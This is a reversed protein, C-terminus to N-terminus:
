SVIKFIETKLNDMFTNYNNFLLMILDEEQLTTKSSCDCLRGNSNVYNWINECLENSSNEIPIIEDQVVIATIVDEHSKIAKHLTIHLIREHLQVTIFYERAKFGVQQDKVASVIEEELAVIRAMRHNDNRKLIGSRELLKLSNEESIISNDLLKKEPSIVYATKEDKWGTGFQENLQTKILGNLYGLYMVVFLEVYETEHIFVLCKQPIEPEFNEKSFCVKIEMELAEKEDENEWSQKHDTDNYLASIEDFFNEM